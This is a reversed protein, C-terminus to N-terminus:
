SERLLIICPTKSTLMSRGLEAAGLVQPISCAPPLEHRQVKHAVVRSVRPVALDQPGADPFAYFTIGLLWFVVPERGSAEWPLDAREYTSITSSYSPLRHYTFSCSFGALGTHGAPLIPSFLGVRAPPFWSEMEKLGPARGKGLVLAGPM